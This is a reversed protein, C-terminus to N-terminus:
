LYNFISTLQKIFVKCPTPNIIKDRMINCGTIEYMYRIALLVQQLRKRRTETDVQSKFLNTHSTPPCYQVSTLDGNKSCNYLKSCLFYICLFVCINVYPQAMKLNEKPVGAM